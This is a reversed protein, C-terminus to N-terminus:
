VWVWTPVRRVCGRDRYSPGSHNIANGTRGWWQALAHVAFQSTDHSMGVCVHGRNAELDLVGYPVAMGKGDSRFDHDNVKIPEKRWAAGPNKFLGVLEKKKTDVSVIPLADKAFARRLRKIYEFQRDRHECNGRPILKRNVHLSYGQKKLLRAITTRSVCISAAQLARRIKKTTKHTWRLGTMPDGATDDAM